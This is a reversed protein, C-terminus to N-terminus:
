EGACIMMISRSSSGGATALFNPAVCTILLVSPLATPVTIAIVPPRPTSTAISATPMAAVNPKTLFDNAGASVDGIDAHM